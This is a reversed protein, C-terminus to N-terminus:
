SGAEDGTIIRKAGGHVGEGDVGGYQVADCVLDPKLEIFDKDCYYYYETHPAFYTRAFYTCQYIFLKM